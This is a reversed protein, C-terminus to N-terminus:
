RVNGKFDTVQLQGTRLNFSARTHDGEKTSMGRVIALEQGFSAITPLHESIRLGPANTAIDKFPGGNAHGPKLDWLDITAPGGSMWLLIVSRTKKRNAAIAQATPAFWGAVSAGGVSVAGTRLFERRSARPHNMFM